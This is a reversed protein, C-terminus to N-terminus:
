LQQFFSDWDVLCKAVDDTNAWKGNTRSDIYSTSSTQKDSDVNPHEDVTDTMNFSQILSDHIDASHHQQTSRNYDNDQRESSTTAYTHQSNVSNNQVLSLEQESHLNSVVSPMCTETSSEPSSITRRPVDQYFKREISRDPHLLVVDCKRTHTMIDELISNIDKLIIAKGPTEGNRALVQIAQLVDNAYDPLHRLKSGRELASM